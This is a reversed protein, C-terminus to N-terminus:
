PRLGKPIALALVILEELDKGGDEDDARRLAERVLPTWARLKAVLEERTMDFEDIDDM